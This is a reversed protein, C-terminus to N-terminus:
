GHWSCKVVSCGATTTLHGSCGNCGSEFVCSWGGKWDMLPNVRGNIMVFERAESSGIKSVEAAAMHPVCMYIYLYIYIYLYYIYIYIYIYVIRSMIIFQSYVSALCPNPQFYSVLLAQGKNKPIWRTKPVVWGNGFVGMYPRIFTRRYNGMKHATTCQHGRLLGCCFPVMWKLGKNRPPQIWVNNRRPGKRWWNSGANKWQIMGSWRLTAAVCYRYLVHKSVCRPNAACAMRKIRRIM